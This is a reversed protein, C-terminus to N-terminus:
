SRGSTKSEQLQKIKKWDRIAGIVLAVNETSEGTELRHKDYKIGFDIGAARDYAALAADTLKGPTENLRKLIEARTLRQIALNELQFNEIIAAKNASYYETLEKQDDFQKVVKAIFGKSFGMLEGVKSYSIGKDVLAKTLAKEEMTAAGHNGGRGGKKPKAM